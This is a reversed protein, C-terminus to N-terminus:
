AHSRSIDKLEREIEDALEHKARTESMRLSRICEKFSAEVTEFHKTYTAVIGARREKGTETELEMKKLKGITTVNLRLMAATAQWRYREFQAKAEPQLDDSVITGIESCIQIKAYLPELEQRAPSFIRELEEFDRERAELDQVSARPSVAM